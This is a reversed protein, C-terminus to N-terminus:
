PGLSSDGGSDDPVETNGAAAITQRTVTHELKIQAVPLPRRCALGVHEGGIRIEQASIKMEDNAEFVDGTELAGRLFLHSGFILM